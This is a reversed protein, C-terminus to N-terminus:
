EVATISCYAQVAIGEERGVIGIGELTTCGIGVDKVPINAANAISETIAPIYGKLKPKEAMITASINNVRYGNEKLLKMVEAFLLMSNIGKYKPDTDPFHYGIDRLSAAARLADMIAHALVDADSHGLLGKVHPIEIGGLILKRGEVLRHLDFGTGVRFRNFDGFDSRYTLKKNNEEGQTPHAPGIYKCFVGTDDTFNDEPKIKSYAEKILPIKFAQPTQVALIDKRTTNVIAGEYIIALTDVPPVSSIASGFEQAETACRNILAPTIFPRAGDHILVVGDGDIRDLANKVSETRTAGGLVIEVKEENKFLETFTDFDTESSTILIKDIEPASLFVSVTKELVTKGDIEALLKNKNLKARSGSGAAAIIAYNKSM